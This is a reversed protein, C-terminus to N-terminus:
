INLKGIKRNKTTRFRASFKINENKNQFMHKTSRRKNKQRQEKPWQTTNDKRSKRIRIVGKPIKLNKENNLYFLHVIYGNKWYTYQWVIKKRFSSSSDLIEYIPKWSKNRNHYTKLTSIRYYVKIPLHYNINVNASLTACLKHQWIRASSLEDVHVNLVPFDTVHV